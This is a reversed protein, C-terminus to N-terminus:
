LCGSGTGKVVMDLPLWNWINIISCTCSHRHGEQLEVTYSAGTAGKGRRRFLPNTWNGRHLAQLQTSVRVWFKGQQRQQLWLWLWLWLWLKGSGSAGSSYALSQNCHRMQMSRQAAENTAWNKVVGGRAGEWSSGKQVAPLRDLESKRSAALWDMQLSLSM